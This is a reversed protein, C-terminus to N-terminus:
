ARRRTELVENLFDGDHRIVYGTVDELIGLTVGFPGQEAATPETEFCEAFIDALKAVFARSTRPETAPSIPPSSGIASCARELRDIECGLLRLQREEYNRHLEDQATLTRTLDAHAADPLGRLLEGLRRAAEAVPALAASSLATPEAADPDHVERRHLDDGFASLQYELAGVFIQRGMEDGIRRGQLAECLRAKREDDLHAAGVFRSKGTPPAPPKTGGDKAPPPEKRAPV